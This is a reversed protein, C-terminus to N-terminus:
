ATEDGRSRDREGRQERRREKLVTILMAKIEDEDPTTAPLDILAQMYPDDEFAARASKSPQRSPDGLHVVDPRPRAPDGLPVPEHGTMVLAPSDPTWGIAKAVRALTDPSVRETGTELKGLTRATVGTALALEKRTAYGAKIRADVVYSALRELDDRPHGMGVVM